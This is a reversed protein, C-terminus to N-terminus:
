QQSWALATKVYIETALPLQDIPVYEDCTHAQDISGPGLVVSPVGGYHWLKSADSGYPVGSLADNVGVKRCAQQAALVVTADYPTALAPTTLLLLECARHSHM